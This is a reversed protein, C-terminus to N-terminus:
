NGEDKREGMKLIYNAAQELIDTESKSILAGTAAILRLKNALAEAEDDIEPEKEKSLGRGITTGLGFAAGMMIMGIVICFIIIEM